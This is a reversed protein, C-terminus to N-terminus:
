VIENAHHMELCKTHSLRVRGKEVNSFEQVRGLGTKPLNELLSHPQSSDFLHGDRCSRLQQDHVHMLMYINVRERVLFMFIFLVSVMFSCILIDCQINCRVVYKCTGYKKKEKQFVIYM